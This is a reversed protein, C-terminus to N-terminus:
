SETVAVQWRADNSIASPAARHCEEQDHSNSSHDERLRGQYRQRAGQRSLGLARGIETWSHGRALLVRIEDEVARQAEVQRIALTRLRECGDPRRLQPQDQTPPVGRGVARPHHPAPGGSVPILWSPAPASEPGEHTVEGVAAPDHDAMAGRALAQRRAAKARSKRGM